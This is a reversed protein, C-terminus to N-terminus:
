ELRGVEFGMGALRQKLAALRAPDVEPQRALIWLYDRQPESIAVLDYAPDLDIIWYNGWVFPLFGLWAPAFRVQLRPSDSGGLQRAEGLAENMRGDALRCRNLVSVTGGPLLSYTASTEGVCKAQFRNPYHAIQYWTGMYRGVDLREISALPAPEAHLPSLSALALLSAATLKKLM